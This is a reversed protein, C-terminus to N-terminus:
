GGVREWAHRVAGKFREWTSDPYRQEWDSRLVPEVEDWPRGGYRADGAMSHGYRYAPLYEDYSGGLAAYRSRYDSEFDDSYREFDRPGPRGEFPSAASSAAARPYVRVGGQGTRAGASQGGASPLVEDSGLPTTASRSPALGEATGASYAPGAAPTGSAPVGAEGDGWGAQRWEAVREEIDVAGATQLTDRAIDVRADDDVDVKVVAGGRRVAEAYASVEDREGAGFIETFFSRINEVIGASGHQTHSPTDGEDFTSETVHVADSGFGSDRLLAAARRAEEYRDFVGVVTQRM